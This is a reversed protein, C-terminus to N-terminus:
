AFILRKYQDGDVRTAAVRALQMLETCVADLQVEYAEHWVYLLGLASIALIAGGVLLGHLLPRNIRRRRKM